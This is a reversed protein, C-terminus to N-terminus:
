SRGENIAKEIEEDTLKYKATLERVKRAEALIREVEAPTRKPALRLDMEMGVGMELLVIVENNISRRNNQARLKLQEYLEPPLNKITISTMEAEM